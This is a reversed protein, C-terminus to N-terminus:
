SLLPYPLWCIAPREYLTCLTLAETKRFKSILLLRKTQWLHSLGGHKLGSCRHIPVFVSLMLSIILFPLSLLTLPEALPMALSLSSFIRAIRFINFFPSVCFDIARVKPTVCAVILPMFRRRVHAWTPYRIMM